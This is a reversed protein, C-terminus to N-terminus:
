PWFGRSLDLWALVAAMVLVLLAAAIIVLSVRRLLREGRSRSPLRRCGRLRLTVAGESPRGSCILSAYAREGKPILSPELTLTFGAVTGTAEVAFHRDEPNDIFAIFEADTLSLTVLGGEFDSPGVDDPGDNLVTLECLHPSRVPLGQFTQSFGAVDHQPALSTARLFVQLSNKRNAYLLTVLWSLLAGGVLGIILIWVDRSM